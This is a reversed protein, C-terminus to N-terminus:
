KMKKRSLTKKDMEIDRRFSEMLNSFLRKSNYSVLNIFPSSLGHRNIIQQRHTIMYGSYALILGPHMVISLTEKENLMFEFRGKKPPAKDKYSTIQKPISIITYSADPETHQVQTQADVYLYCNLYGKNEVEKELKSNKPHYDINSQIVAVKKSCKDRIPSFRNNIMDLCANQIFFVKRELEALNERM